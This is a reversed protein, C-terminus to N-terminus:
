LQIDEENLMKRLRREESRAMRKINKQDRGIRKKAKRSKAAMRDIKAKVIDSIRSM